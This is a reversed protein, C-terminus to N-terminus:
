TIRDLLAIADEVSAVDRPNIKPWGEFSKFGEVLVLDARLFRLIDPPAEFAIRRISADFLVGERDAALIM